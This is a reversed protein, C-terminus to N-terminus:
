KYYFDPTMKVFINNFVFMCVDSKRYLLVCLMFEQITPECMLFYMKSQQQFIFVIMHWWSVFSFTVVCSSRLQLAYIPSIILLIIPFNILINILTIIPFIILTIIPFNFLTIISFIILTIIPFIILTNVPFNILLINRSPLVTGALLDWILAYITVVFSRKQGPISWSVSSRGM